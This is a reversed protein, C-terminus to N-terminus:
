RVIVFGEYGTLKEEKEEIDTVKAWFSGQHCWEIFKKLDEEKGEADVYVNGDSNNRVNGSINNKIAAELCSARYGVKQVRGKILLKKRKEM